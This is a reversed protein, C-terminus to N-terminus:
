DRNGCPREPEDATGVRCQRRSLFQSILHGIFTKRIRLAVYKAILKPVVHSGQRFFLPSCEEVGIAVLPLPRMPWRIVSNKAM